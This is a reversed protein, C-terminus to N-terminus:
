PFYDSYALQREVRNVSSPSWLRYKLFRNIYLRFWRLTRHSQILKLKLMCPLILCNQIVPLCVLEQEQEQQQEMKYVLWHQQQQQQQKLIHTYMPLVWRTQGNQNQKPVVELLLDRSNDTSIISLLYYSISVVSQMYTCIYRYNNTVEHTLIQTATIIIRRKTYAHMYSHMSAQTHKGIYEHAYRHRIAFVNCFGFPSQM